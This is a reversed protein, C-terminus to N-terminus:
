ASYLTPLAYWIHVVLAGATLNDVTDTTATITCVPAYAAEFAWTGSLAGPAIKWGAGAGTFVDLATCLETTAGTDGVEATVASASGGSFETDLEIGASMLIANAPFGTLAVEQSAATDTLDSVSVTAIYEKLVLSRVGLAEVADPVATDDSVRWTGISRDVLAELQDNISELTDSSLAASATAGAAVELKFTTRGTTDVLQTASSSTNTVTLIPM